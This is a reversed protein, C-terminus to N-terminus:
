SDSSIGFRKIGINCRHRCTSLMIFHGLNTRKHWTRATCAFVSDSLYLDSDTFIDPCLTDILTYFLNFYPAGDAHILVGFLTWDFLKLLAVLYVDIGPRFLCPYQDVTFIS